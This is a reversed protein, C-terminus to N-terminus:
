IIHKLIRKAAEVQSINSVDIHITDMNTYLPIREISRQLVDPMRKGNYIDNNLRKTLAEESVSLTFKYVRVDTLELKKLLNNIISEEHMVWCFIVNEYETCALFNNLLFCINSEVMQKTEQTVRFPNMYWCWDGDLFVSPQLLGLLEKSTSTKGVGMTGNIFILRKM